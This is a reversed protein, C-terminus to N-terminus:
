RSAETRELVVFFPGTRVHGFFTIDLMMVATVAELAYYLPGRNALRQKAALRALRAEEAARLADGEAADAASGGAVGDPATGGASRLSAGKWRGLAREAMRMLINEVFAGILPTYYRIRAVRFGAASSSASSTQSTPM